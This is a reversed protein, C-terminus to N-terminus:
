KVFFKVELYIVLTSLKFQLGFYVFVEILYEGYSQIISVLKFM